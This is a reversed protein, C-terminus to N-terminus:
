AVVVPRVRLQFPDTHGIISSGERVRVQSEYWGAPFDGAELVYQARGGTAPSVVQCTKVGIGRVLLEVTKDTLDAVAGGDTLDFTLGRGVDAAYITMVAM